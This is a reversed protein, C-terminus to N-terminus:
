AGNYYYLRAEVTCDAINGGALAGISISNPQVFRQATGPQVAGLIGGGLGVGAYVTIATPGDNRVTFLVPAPLAAIGIIPYTFDVYTPAAAGDLRSRWVVKVLSKNSM